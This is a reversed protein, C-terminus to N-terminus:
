YGRSWNFIQRIIVSGCYGKNRQMQCTYRNIWIQYFLYKLENGFCFENDTVISKNLSSLGTMTKMINWVKKTNNTKFAEELCIKHAKTEKLTTKFERETQKLAVKRLHIVGKIDKTVYPKNNPYVTIEKTPVLLEVCFHITM